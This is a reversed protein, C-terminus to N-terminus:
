GNAILHHNLGRRAFFLVSDIEDQTACPEFKGGGFPMRLPESSINGTPSLRVFWQGISQGRHLQRVVMGKATRKGIYVDNGHEAHTSPASFETM